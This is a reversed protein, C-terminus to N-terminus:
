TSENFTFLSYSFNAELGTSIRNLVHLKLVHLSNAISANAFGPHVTNGGGSLFENQLAFSSLKKYISQFIYVLSFLKKYNCCSVRWMHIYTEFSVM